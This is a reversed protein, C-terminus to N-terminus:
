PCVSFYYAVIFYALITLFSYFLHLKVPIYQKPLINLKQYVFTILFLKEFYYAIVTAIAVGIIGWLHIFLVSLTVNIIIEFISGLLIINSRKLGILITQPFVMRSVILLLYINFVYASEAFNKNFIIPYLWISIFLLVITVPFLFHMYQKSKNKIKKLLSSLKNINSFEPIMANSFANALIVVLPFERAGYQFIAFKAADYYHSVLFGDVYKASGSLLSSFILPYALHIHEKIFKFSVIFEAYRRLLFLLWIIRIVSILILGWLCYEISYGLISPLSVLVLQISFSIISYQIIQKPKNKLLYFYTIFYSPNSILIYILLLNFYKIPHSNNLLQSLYTKFILVFLFALISFLSILLFANFFEPSKENNKTESKKFTKNNGYLPLFSQTLGSVWFFSVASAIFLLKEYVGIDATTLQTKTFIVGILFLSAFRILQSIQFGSINNIYKNIKM